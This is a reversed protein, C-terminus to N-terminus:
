AEDKGDDHAFGHVAREGIHEKAGEALFLDGGGAVGLCPRHVARGGLLGGGNETRSVLHDNHGPVSHGHRLCLVLDALKVIGQRLAADVDLEPDVRNGSSHWPMHVNQQRFGINGIVLQQIHIDHVAFERM